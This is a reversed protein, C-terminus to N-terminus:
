YNRSKLNLIENIVDTQKSQEAYSKYEGQMENMKSQMELAAASELGRQFLSLMKGYHQQEILTLKKSGICKGFETMAKVWDSLSCINNFFNLVNPDKAPRGVPRTM